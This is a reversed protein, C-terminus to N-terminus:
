FLYNYQMERHTCNSYHSPSKENLLFLIRMQGMEEDIFIHIVYIIRVLTVIVVYIIM